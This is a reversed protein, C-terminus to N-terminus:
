VGGFELRCREFLTVVSINGAAEPDLQQARM